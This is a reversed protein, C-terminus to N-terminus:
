SAGGEQSARLWAMIAEDSARGELYQKLLDVGDTLVESGVEVAENKLRDILEQALGDIM